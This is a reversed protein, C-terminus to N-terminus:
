VPTPSVSSDSAKQREWKREEQDRDGREQKRELERRGTETEKARKERQTGSRGGVESLPLLCQATQRKRDKGSGKRRTEAKGKGM